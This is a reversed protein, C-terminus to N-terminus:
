RAGFAFFRMVADPMLGLYFVGVLSLTLAAITAGALVPTRRAGEPAPVFYMLVIPRLYYYVSAASNLVGFVVLMSLGKQWAAKFVLLKGMFGATMPFGALSLLFISLAISLGLSEM